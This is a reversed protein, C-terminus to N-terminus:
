MAGIAKLAAVEEPTLGPTAPPTPAPAPPTVTEGGGGEAKAEAIATTVEERTMLGLESIAKEVAAEVVAPDPQAHYAQWWGSIGIAIGLVATALAGYILGRPMSRGDAGNAGNMGPLGQEGPDGKPGKPGQPGKPGRLEPTERVLNTLVTRFDEYEDTLEETSAASEDEPADESAATPELASGEPVDGPKPADKFGAFLADLNLDKIPAPAPTTDDGETPVDNRETNEAMTFREQPEFYYERRRTSRFLLGLVITIVGVLAVIIFTALKDAQALVYVVGALTGFPVLVIVAAVVTRQWLVLGQWFKTLQTGLEFFFNGM